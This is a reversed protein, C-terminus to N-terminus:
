FNKRVQLPRYITISHEWESKGALRSKIASLIKNLETTNKGGKELTSIVSEFDESALVLLNYRPLIENEVTEESPLVKM